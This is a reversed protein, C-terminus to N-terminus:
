EFAWGGDISFFQSTQFTGKGDILTAVFHAAEEPRCLRRMPVGQEVETRKAPDTDAGVDHLFSPYDMAYTGTANVTVGHPAVTQGACRVLANAGARLASYVSAFAAPRLGSASTNIVVQGSKQAVLPPLLAQLAYFVSLFNGEYQIQCDEPTSDLITGDGHVGTRICAADFGGFAKKARDVLKKITDAKTQDVTDPVVEVKAGLAALEDALGDMADGLVLDHDRRAMERALAPMMHTQADALIVVRRKQNKKSM